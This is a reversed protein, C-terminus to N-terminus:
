AKCMLYSSILTKPDAQQRFLWTTDKTPTGPDNIVEECFGSEFPPLLGSSFPNNDISGIRAEHTPVVANRVFAQEVRDDEVATHFFIDKIINMVEPATPFPVRFAPDRESPAVKEYTGDADM